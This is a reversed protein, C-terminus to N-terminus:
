FTKSLNRQFISKIYCKRTMGKVHLFFRCTVMNGAEDIASYFVYYVQQPLRQNNKMNQIVKTVGVNDSFKPEPWMVKEYEEELTVYYDKSPCKLIKPPERDLYFQHHLTFYKDESLM